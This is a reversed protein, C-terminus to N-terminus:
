GAGCSASSRIPSASSSASRHARDRLRARVRRHDPGAAEARRRADAVGLVVFLVCAKSRRRTSSARIARCRGAAPFCWRGPCTPRRPGVTRRQHFQRAPRPVTRDAGVACTLDGLSLIPIGRQRAFLVVALSAASSAATSRCAARGSSCSRSRIRPSIAGPQLVARLRHRGGLIIGLTVWLSSTTSTPSADAAGPRGVAARQPHHARAYLWGLLIGVIYALAYWRIAFPGIAILVPDFAPFPLVLLPM